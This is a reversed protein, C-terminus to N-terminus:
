LFCGGGGAGLGLTLSADKYSPNGVQRSLTRIRGMIMGAFKRGQERDRRAAAIKAEVRLRGDSETALADLAKHKHAIDAGGCDAHRHFVYGFRDAEKRLRVVDEEVAAQEQAALGIAAEIKKIENRSRRGNKAASLEM